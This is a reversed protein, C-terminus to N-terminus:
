GRMLRDVGDQRQRVRPHRLERARPRLGLAQHRRVAPPSREQGHRQRVRQRGRDRAGPAGEGGRREDLGLRRPRLEQPQRDPDGGEELSGVKFGTAVPGFLEDDWAPSGPRPDVLVTPPYFNGPGPLSRGGTAIRAGAAVSREVQEALEERIKATALPGIEIAPDIPDGVRLAAMGAVFLELFRDYVREHVIFRKAAICSQGNNITRAKVATAAAKEVEASPLVLFPDSGGLELVAKKIEAGALGGISVGAGESGTLTVAAVRPDRVLAAVAPVGVLLTQFCGAPFGARRFIEEIALASQPVNSAHKLIGVNGAMLAPAAFRFVQWFPFNWPMVALVCGLPDFRVYSEGADTPAREPALFREANEAYYRCVWACKEAEAIAAGIPKGMELTMTEGWHRKDKEIEEAARVMLRAREAFPVARWAPFTEAARALCAEIEAPGHETFARLTAGTAPNVSAITM